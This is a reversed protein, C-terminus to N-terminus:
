NVKKQVRRVNNKKENELRKGEEVWKFATSMSIDQLECIEKLTKGDQKLKYCMRQKDAKQEKTLRPRKKRDTKGKPRGKPKPKEEVFQEPKVDEVVEKVVPSDDVAKVDVVKKEVTTGYRKDMMQKTPKQENLKREKGKKEKRKKFATVMVPAYTAMIMVILMFEPNVGTERNKLLLELPQRIRKKRSEKVQYLHENEFDNSIAMAGYSFVMDIVEIGIEAMLQHDAFLEQPIDDEEGGLNDSGVSESDIGSGELVDKDVVNEEVNAKDELPINLIDTISKEANQESDIFQAENNNTEVNNESENLGTNEVNNEVNNEVKKAM